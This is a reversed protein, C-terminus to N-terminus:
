PKPEPYGGRSLLDRAYDETIACHCRQRAYEIFNALGHHGTAKAMSALEADLRGKSAAIRDKYAQTTAM